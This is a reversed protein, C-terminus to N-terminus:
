HQAASTGRSVEAQEEYHAAISPVRPDQPPWPVAQPGATTALTGHEDAASYGGLLVGGIRSPMTGTGCLSIILFGQQRSGLAHRSERLHRVAQGADLAQTCELAQPAEQPRYVCVLTLLLLRSCRRCLCLPQALSAGRVM